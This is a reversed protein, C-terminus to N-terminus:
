PKVGKKIRARLKSLSKAQIQRIRERTVGMTDGIEELTEPDHGRRSDFDFRRRIVSRERDTLVGLTAMVESATEKSIVIDEPSPEQDPILDRFMLGSGQISPTDISLHKQQNEAELLAEVKVPKLGLASALEEPSNENKGQLILKEQVARLKNRTERVHVPQRINHGKDSIARSIAQRIWWSAYTSLKYGRGPDFKALSRRLGLSGEQIRDLLDLDSNRYRKAISVVLRLNHSIILNKIEDLYAKVKSYEERTQPNVKGSTKKEQKIQQCLKNYARRAMIMQRCAASEEEATYVPFRNLDIFYKGMLTSGLEQQSEQDMVPLEHSKLDELTLDEAASEEQKYMHSFLTQSLFRDSGTIKDFPRSDSIVM